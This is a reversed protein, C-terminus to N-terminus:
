KGGIENIRASERRDANIGRTHDDKRQYPKENSNFMMLIFGDYM